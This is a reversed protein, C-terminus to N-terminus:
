IGGRIVEVGSVVKTVGPVRCVISEISLDGAPRRKVRERKTAVIKEIENLPPQELRLDCGGFRIQTM